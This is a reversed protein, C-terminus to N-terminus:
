ELLLLKRACGEVLKTMGHASCAGFLAAASAKYRDVSIRGRMLSYRLFVFATQVVDTVCYDQIEQAKGAAFAAAILSGDFGLKGPLGILKAMTDLGFGKFPGYDSLQEMLDVHMGESYKKRYDTSYWAQSIGHRYARLSLVPMDFGRGNFSVLTPKFSDVFTNWATLLAAEDDGFTTTGVCGMQHYEIDDNLILYGIAVPRHAYPPPFADEKSGRKKPASSASWVAPDPVTEIDFVLYSM